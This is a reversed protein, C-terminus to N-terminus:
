FELSRVDMHPEIVLEENNIAFALPISSKNEIAGRCYICFNENKNKTNHCEHTSKTKMKAVGRQGQIGLFKALESLLSINM